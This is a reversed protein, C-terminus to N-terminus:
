EVKKLNLMKMVVKEVPPFGAKIVGIPGTEFFVWLLLIMLLLPIAFLITNKNEPVM